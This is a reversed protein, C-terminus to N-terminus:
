LYTKSEMYGRKYIAINLSIIDFELKELFLIQVFLISFLGFFTCFAHSSFIVNKQM